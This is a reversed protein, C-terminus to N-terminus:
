MQRGIVIFDTILNQLIHQRSFKSSYQLTINMNAGIGQLDYFIRNAGEAGAWTMTGWLGDGWVSGAGIVSFERESGKPYTTIAYDFSPRISFTIPDVSAIEFTVRLFRKLYRPSKYHYYSTSLRSTIAVGDFSTGIHDEYAYGSSSSFFNIPNGSSDRGETTISVPNTFEILTIGRLKKNFFSFVLGKGDNFYLRYQNLSRIVASCTINSKYAFLSKKIKESISNSAFDGFEQAASLTTVGMDSMFILTDFLKEVTYKYAGVVDSYSNLVWDLTGSGELLKIQTQGFVVLINGITESLATINYGVGIEGASTVWDLPDGVTSYQLSGGAFSLWLRDNHAELFEPTDTTMGTTIKGFTTGNYYGAKDVGSAWYMAEGASAGSFNYTIFTYRGGPLLPTASTDIETWSTGSEVYLGASLGGAKNRIAYLKNKFVYLGNITGIGPVAAILTRAAERAAYDSETAAIGSPKPQGDYREYGRVSVYGGTSGETLYYNKSLILEGSKMEISSVAENLGGDLIIVETTPEQVRIQKANM